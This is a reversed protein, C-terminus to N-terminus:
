QNNKSYNLLQRTSFFIRAGPFPEGQVKPPVFFIGAALVSNFRNLNPLPSSGIVKQNNTNQYTLARFLREPTNQFSVFNLGPVIGSDESSTTLFEFGQRYIRSSKKDWLPVGDVPRVRRIHSYQLIKDKEIGYPSYERFQENGPDIIESTGPVPCRADKIPKGNNDVNILPCGTVKDRGILIQQETVSTDEWKELNFAIRIFALYTGYLTWSEQSSLYRSDISIVYPREHRKLNSLGDHFGLWNRQDARKFGTYLGTIRLPARGRNKELRHREKWVEVAARNTFFENDAIFQFLVLDTLLHNSSIKKSYTMGSGELIEGGGGSDPPKFNYSDGFSAPIVKQSGPITFLKSGYGVLVTLDGNKRHQSDIDLGVVIGKKLKVLNNWIRGVAGGIESIQTINEASLSVICFSNGISPKAHYYIGEQLDISM